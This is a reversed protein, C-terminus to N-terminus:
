GHHERTPALTIDFYYEQGVEFEKHAAENVICTSFSASPTWKGFIKNESCSQQYSVFNGKEDLTAGHVATFSLTASTGEAGDDHHFPLVTKHTCVLKCRVTM